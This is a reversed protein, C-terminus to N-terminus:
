RNSNGAGGCMGTKCPEMGVAVGAGSRGTCMNTVVTWTNTGPDYCEVSSLFDQGDYGGLAYVKGGVVDVSLASRRSNMSSMFEWRDNEVDYREMSSLQSMGDYGGVAYIYGDLSTVGAGSRRTQMPTVMTWEDNEPHYCEVTNLRNVGDFGGVAYLLRNVVACGVGIRKTSMPAIVTWKDDDPSYREASNHQNCQHSGGVAYLHGDLVAVAVRNRPYNMPSLTKWQNNLPNYADLRNSDTNAEATNNRGGVVYFIGHITAASLGSRPEPLEALRLWRDEEPNYCEVTTLSQRLYGGATYIVCASIPNRRPMKFSKHLQLEQFIKSLYDKCKPEDRLIDCRDLQQKLFAPSLHEVRIAGCNFLKELCPRREDENHRVWRMCADYVESECWVNLKDHKIVALLQILSLNMFEESHSVECFHRFVFKSAQEKLSRLSHEQAYMSIGICNSPDLQHELFKCCADVIDTIQFMIAKPLLELVSCETITIESTYMFDMIRSFVCPHVDKIEIAQKSCEHFGRTFMAKFYQSCSALVVKHAHFKVTEVILTVDCLDRNERLEDLVKFANSPHKTSTFTISGDCSIKHRIGKQTWEAPMNSPPEVSPKPPVKPSDM